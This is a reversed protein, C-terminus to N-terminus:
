RQRQPCRKRQTQHSGVCSPWYRPQQQQEELWKTYQENLLTLVKQTTTLCRSIM